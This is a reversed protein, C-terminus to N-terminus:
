KLLDALHAPASLALTLIPARAGYLHCQCSLLVLQHVNLELTWNTTIHECFVGFPQGASVDEALLTDSTLDCTFLLCLFSLLQERPTGLALQLKAMSVKFLDFTKISQQFDPAGKSDVIVKACLNRM